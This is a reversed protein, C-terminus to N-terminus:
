IEAIKPSLMESYFQSFSAVSTPRNQSSCFVTFTLLESLISRIYKAVFMACKDNVNWNDYQDVTFCAIRKMLGDTKQREIVDRGQFDVPSKLKCTFGLGAELPSDDSRLDAHWHRYGTIRHRRKM